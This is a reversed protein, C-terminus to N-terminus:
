HIVSPVYFSFSLNLRGRGVDVRSIGVELNQTQPVQGTLQTNLTQGRNERPRLLGRVGDNEEM